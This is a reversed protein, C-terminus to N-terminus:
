NGELPKKVLWVRSNALILPTCHALEQCCEDVALVVGTFGMDYDHGFMYGGPRLLPWWARIDANCEPYTHGADIFIGDLLLPGDADRFVPGTATAVSEGRIVTPVLQLGPVVQQHAVQNLNDLCIGQIDGGYAMWTVWNQDTKSGEFTDVVSLECLIRPTELPYSGYTDDVYDSIISEPLMTDAADIIASAITVASEGCWTGIEVFRLPNDEPLEGEDLVRQIAHRAALNTAVYIALMDDDGTNHNIGIVNFKGWLQRHIAHMALAVYPEGTIPHKVTNNITQPTNPEMRSNRRHLHPPCSVL